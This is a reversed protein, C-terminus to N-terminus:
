QCSPTAASWVLEGAIWTQRVDGERDLVLFDARRGAEIGGRTDDRMLMAVNETVCRVAQPLTLGASVVMNRVCQPLTICSGILTEVEGKSVDAVNTARNGIKRQTYTIQDNPPYIGDALGALEISDTILICKDSNALFCFRLISPHLHVLDPIVSFWPPHTSSILGALGPERHHLPNMANFVHTLTRAGAQCGASGQEFTATSHGLAVVIHPFSTRIDQIMECAGPLEPAITIMKIIHRLNDEGYVDRYPHMSPVRFFRDNHAGKKSPHLYPGEVHAGLLPSGRTSPFTRPRLMPLVKKWRDVPVTPVTAWWGTVGNEAMSRAVIELKHLDDEVKGQGLTTFHVGALGNTQLELYGPVILDGDVPKVTEYLDFLGDSDLSISNISTHLASEFRGTARNVLIGNKGCAPHESGM